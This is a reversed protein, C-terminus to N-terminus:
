PEFGVAHTVEWVLQVLGIKGILLVNNAVLPALVHLVRGVSDDFFSDEVQEIGLAMGVVGVDHTRVLVNM